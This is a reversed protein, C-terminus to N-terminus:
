HQKTGYGKHNKFGYQFYTKDMKTMFSDRHVKALVSACSIVKIKQDGRIITKQFIYEKPAKLLGDLMVRCERPVLNLKRLCKKIALFTARSIGHKDIYSAPVPSISFKILGKGKANYAIESLEERKRPSLKKSDTFGKLLKKSFWYKSDNPLCVACVTVPGALPGRGVEDIGIIYKTDKM